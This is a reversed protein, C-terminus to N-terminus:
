EIIFDELTEKWTQLDSVGGGYRAEMDEALDMNIALMNGKFAEFEKLPHGEPMQQLVLGAIYAARSSSLLKTGMIYAAYLIKIEEPSLPLPGDKRAIDTKNLLLRVSLRQMFGPQKYGPLMGGETMLFYVNMFNLASLVHEWTQLTYQVPITSM